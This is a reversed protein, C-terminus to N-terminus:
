RHLNEIAHREMNRLDNISEIESLRPEGGSLPV